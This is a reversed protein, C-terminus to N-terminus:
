PINSTTAETEGMMVTFVDAPDYDATKFFRYSRSVFPASSFGEDEFSFAAYTGDSYNQVDSFIPDTGDPILGKPVDIEIIGRVNESWVTLLLYGQKGYDTVNMYFGDASAVAFTAQLTKRYGGSATVSVAYRFGDDLEGLTVTRETEINADAQLTKTVTKETVTEGNVTFLPDESTVTVTYTIEVESVRLANEYNRLTFSTEGTGAHLAIERSKSALLDSEFYFAKGRVSPSDEKVTHVYKALVGCTAACSVLLLLACVTIWARKPIRLKKM